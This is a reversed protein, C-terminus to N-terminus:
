AGGVAVDLYQPLDIQEQRPDLARLITRAPQDTAQNQLDSEVPPNQIEGDPGRIIRIRPRLRDEHNLGIVVACENTNLKILSGLPYVGLMKIAVEVLNKDYRGKAGLVFLQRIADHPLLPARGYRSTVLDDYTDALAMLQALPSLGGPKVLKPYGSGDQFEHHQAIIHSVAEPLLDIKSLVTAALQPHQRMLVQEQETLPSTKRYLNRPLRVFGIDHLLAGLGLAEMEDETCSNEVALILTLVCVDMGHNALTGDFRRMKDLCFQIMMAEPHEVIQKLLRSVVPKLATIKPPQGAELDTFVREVAEMAERYTAAAAAAHSAHGNTAAELIESSAPPPEPLPSPAEPAAVPAAGVDLGRDTDITVIQIGHRKLQVIDDPNSVLWKHLLFPTRYWPQDLGAIFMGVTLQDIPIHKTSAM